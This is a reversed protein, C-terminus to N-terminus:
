RPPRRVVAATLAVGGAGAWATEAGRRDAGNHDGGSTLVATAPRSDMDATGADVWLMVGWLALGVAVALLALAARRRNM